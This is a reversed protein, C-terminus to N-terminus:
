SVDGYLYEDHEAALDTPGNDRFVAKDSFMPDDSRSQSIARELLERVFEAVTMGRADAEQEVKVKLDPTLTIQTDM